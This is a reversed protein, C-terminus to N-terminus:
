RARTRMTAGGAGTIARVFPGHRAADASASGHPTRGAVTANGMRKFPTDPVTMTERVGLSRMGGAVGCQM